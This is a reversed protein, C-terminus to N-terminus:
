FFLKKSLIIIEKILSINSKNLKKMIEKLQIKFENRFEILFDRGDKTLKIFIVRRDNEDNIRIVFKLEILKDILKTVNPKPMELRKSLESMKIQKDACNDIIMLTDLYIRSIKKKQRTEFNLKFFKSILVSLMSFIDDTLSDLEKDAM